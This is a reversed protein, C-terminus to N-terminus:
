QIAEELVTEVGARRENEDGIIRTPSLQMNIIQAFMQRLEEQIQATKGEREVEKGKAEQKEAIEHGGREIERRTKEVNLEAVDADAMAKRAAAQKVAMDAPEVLQPQVGGQELAAAELQTKMADAMTKAAQAKKLELDALMLPDPEETPPMTEPKKPDALLAPPVMNRLRRAIEDAEPWDMAKALLDGIVSAAQPVARMFEIMSNAAEIRKTAYSRGVTVRIDFSAASLDNFVVPEGMDSYAVQNIRVFKQEDQSAAPGLLRIVRENDYIKPILDILIRGCHELSRQLNDSFHYNAVDSEAQRRSIAIGATENSKDGLAADYIGTTGKMDDSAVQAEQMLATPMEPPHERRPAAGPAEPDPKYLLYPNNQTNATDWMAKFPGIMNPTALYPAKPALAISEATATRYFNYLQQPDRAFRIAGYRYVKNELPFEGGIVPVLPIFKGAWEYPGELIESGSIIFQEVKHTECPRTRVIPLQGLEAEGKGTVDITEGTELLALTKTIRTKRWYEAIRVTDSTSWYFPRDYGSTPTTVEVEKAKPYKRKFTEKPLMETVAIWMADSRDPLNAGPDCYVSLPNKVVSIKLEQDFAMDDAYDSSVRWWGIGCSAQHEAATSYVHRASSRYQIQRIIGDYIEALAPDQDDDEPVVKIAIDAQRIDNTIQRVFQPLRNITLMPRRAAEREKRVSEPWQDGALMSLDKAAEERNDRDHEWSTQIHDVVEKILAESDIQNLKRSPKNNM